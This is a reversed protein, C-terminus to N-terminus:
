ILSARDILYWIIFYIQQNFIYFANEPSYRFAQGLISSARHRFTLLSQWCSQQIDESLNCCKPSLFLFLKSYSLILLLFRSWCLVYVLLGQWLDVQCSSRNLKCHINYSITNINLCKNVVIPDSGPTLLVTCYVNVCLCYMSCCLRCLCYMSCSRCLYYMSCCLRCLCYVSCCLRCLFYMSWGLRCLCYMSCCLRCLCYM